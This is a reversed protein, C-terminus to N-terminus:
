RAGATMMAVILTAVEGVVERPISWVSVIEMLRTAMEAVFLMTPMEQTMSLSSLLPLPAPALRSTSTWSEAM